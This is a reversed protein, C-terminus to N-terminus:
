CQITIASMLVSSSCDIHKMTIDNDETKTRTWMHAMRILMNQHMIIIIIIIHHPIKNQPASYLPCVILSGFCINVLQSMSQNIQFALYSINLLMKQRWM